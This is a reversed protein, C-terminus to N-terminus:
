LGINAVSCAGNSNPRCTLSILYSRKRERTKPSEALGVGRRGCTSWSCSSIEPFLPSTSTAGPISSSRWITSRRLPRCSKEACNFRSRTPEAKGVAFAPRNEISTKSQSMVAEIRRNRYFTCCRIPLRWMVAGTDRCPDQVSRNLLREGLYTSCYVSM